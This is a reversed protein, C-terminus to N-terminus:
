EFEKAFLDAGSKLQGGKYTCEAVTKGEIDLEKFAGDPEGGDLQGTLRLHGEDDYRRYPGTPDGAKFTIVELPKNDDGYEVSEGHPQGDKYPCTHTLNGDDDFDSETGSGMRVESGISGDPKYCTISVAKGDTWSSQKALKGSERYLKETETTWENALMDGKASHEWQLQKRDTDFWAQETATTQRPQADVWDIAYTHRIPFPDAAELEMLKLNRPMIQPIVSDTAIVTLEAERDDNLRGTPIFDVVLRNEGGVFPIPRTSIGDAKDFTDFPKENISVTVKFGKLKYTMALWEFKVGKFDETVAPATTPQTQASATAAILLVLLSAVPPRLM